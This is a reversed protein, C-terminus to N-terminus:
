VFVLPVGVRLRPPDADCCGGKLAIGGWRVIGGVVWRHGWGGGRFPSPLRLIGWWVFVVCVSVGGCVVLM